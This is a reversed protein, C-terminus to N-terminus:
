RSASTSTDRTRTGPVPVMWLFRLRRVRAAVEEKTVTAPRLQAPEMWKTSKDPAAGTDVYGDRMQLYADRRLATLYPRAASEFRPTWLKQSIEDEVEEFDALGAKHRAEIKIILFGGGVRIPDSVFGKDQNEIVAKLQSSLDEIEVAPLRGESAASESDSNERALDGFKEGQRARETLSKAKKELAAIEAENKGATSVLIESLFVRDQRIFEDKNADYYAQLDSRSIRIKSGVEQQLLRQTMLSDALQQKFDEFSMGTERAVLQQFQERDAIRANRQMEALQRTVEGEVAIEKEKAKQVMLLNDIRDRLINAEREKLEAELQQGSLGRQKLSDELEERARQIDGTTIIDGNVKVIIREIVRTDAALAPWLLLALCLLRLSVAMGM